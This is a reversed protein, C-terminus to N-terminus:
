YLAKKLTLLATRPYVVGALEQYEANRGYLTVLVDDNPIDITPITHESLPNVELNLFTYQGPRLTTSTTGLPEPQPSMAKLAYISFYISIDDESNNLVELHWNTLEGDTYDKNIPGPTLIMVHDGKLM